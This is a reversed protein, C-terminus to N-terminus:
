SVTDPFDHYRCAASSDMKYVLREGEGRILLCLKFYGKSM